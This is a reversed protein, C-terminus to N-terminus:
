TSQTAVKVHFVCEPALDTMDLELELPSPVMEAVRPEESEPLGIYVDAGLPQAVAEQLFAGIGKGSARRIVEGVLFGFTMAHYSNKTGPEWMPEQSQLRSVVTPWDCFQELTIPEVFGPLGAQHSLVHSVTTDEKGKCAFEPWYTGVRESYDILGRDVLVAAAIATLGKTASWINATTNERWPRTRAKDAFGGYLDVVCEGSLYVSFGAGVERYHDDRDFNSIFCERVAEFGPAVFGSIEAGM